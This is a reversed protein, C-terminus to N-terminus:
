DQLQYEKFRITTASQRHTLDKKPRVGLSESMWVNKTLSKLSESMTAWTQHAVQAFQEHNSMKPSRGSRNAKCRENSKLSILSESVDSVLFSSILSESMKEIFFNYIFCVLFLIKSKKLWIKKLSNSMQENKTLLILSESVDSMEESRGSRIAWPQENKTLSRLSESVNSVSFSPILSTSM